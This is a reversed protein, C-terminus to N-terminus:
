RLADSKQEQFRAEPLEQVSLDNFLVVRTAKGAPRQSPVPAALLIADGPASDNLSADYLWPKEEGDAPDKFVLLSEDELAGSEVLDALQAPYTGNHDAAHIKLAMGLQRVRNQTQTQDAKQQIQNFAPVALSAVIALASIGSLSGLQAGGVSSNAAAFLGDKENAYAFAQPAAFEKGLNDILGLVARQGSDAPGQAPQSEIGKKLGDMLTIMFRSSLYLCGNGQEPLGGWASTFEPKAVLKDTEALVADLYAPRTAIVARADALHLQLCPQFDMPAPMAPESMRVSLLGNAESVQFMGSPLARLQEQVVPLLPGLRDLIIAMDLGPLPVPAGPLATQQEPRLSALLALRLDLNEGLERVTLNLGPIKESTGAEIMPKQDAPAMEMYTGWAQAFWDKTRLPFEIALDTDLVAYRRTLLTEAPGGTLSLLGSRGQPTFAFARAHHRGGPLARSSSGAAKIAAFGFLDMVKKFSFNPPMKAKEEAPLTAIVQEALRSLLDSAAETELYSFSAGGVELRSAVTLFHPSLGESLLEVSPRAPQTPAAAPVANDSRQCQTLVAVTLLLVLHLKM